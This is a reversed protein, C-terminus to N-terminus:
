FKCVSVVSPQKCNPKLMMMTVKIMVVENNHVTSAKQAFFKRMEDYRDHAKQYGMKSPLDPKIVFTPLVLPWFMSSGAIQVDLAQSASRSNPWPSRSTSTGAM